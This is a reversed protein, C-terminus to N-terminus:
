FGTNSLAEDAQELKDPEPLPLLLTTNYKPHLANLREYFEPYDLSLKMITVVSALLERLKPHGIDDTLRRHHHYRLRGSATREGRRRLEQLVEPALRAYIIDNTLHGFYMPRKVSSPNYAAGRLRFLERYYDEPFTHVWPRLEKAIFAELIRALADKPRQYQYGTAEDILAIIAVGALSRMAIDCATFIKEYPKPTKHGEALFTDRLRLYVECTKTLLQADYGVGKAGSTTIYFIPTTSTRLEETIFPKLAEAQLFFPLEDVTSLVGTGAKPSRSRGMTRLFDAQTIIRRGDSLVACAIDQDGVKITGEGVSVPFNGSWRAKAADRAIAKRREISLKAARAHGGRAKGTVTPQGSQPQRQSADDHKMSAIRYCANLAQLLNTTSANKALDFDQTQGCVRSFEM